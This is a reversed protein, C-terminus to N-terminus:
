CDGRTGFKSELWKLPLPLMVSSESDGVQGGGLWAVFHGDTKPVLAQSSVYRRDLRYYDVLLSIGLSAKRDVKITYFRAGPPLTM